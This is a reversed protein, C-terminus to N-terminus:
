PRVGRKIATVIMQHGFRTVQVAADILKRFPRLLPVGPPLDGEPHYLKRRLNFSRTRIRIDSFGSQELLSTISCPEFLFIHDSGNLYVWEPGNVWRSLSAFNTTSLRIEGGRRLVGHINIMAQRPSQLHEIVDWARVVDVSAGPAHFTEAPDELIRDIKRGALSQAADRNVEVAWTEWGQVSAESLFWGRGAGIELIRNLNRFPELEALECRLRRLQSATLADEGMSGTGGQKQFELHQALRPNVFVLGCSQCRVHRFGEKVFLLVNDQSGCLDCAVEALDVDSKMEAKSSVRSQRTRSDM